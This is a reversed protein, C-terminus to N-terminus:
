SSLHFLQVGFDVIWSGWSSSSVVKNIVWLVGKNSASLVLGQYSWYRCARWFMRQHYQLWPRYQLNTKTTNATHSCVSHRDRYGMLRCIYLRPSSLELWGQRRFARHVSLEVVLWSRWNVLAVGRTRHKM